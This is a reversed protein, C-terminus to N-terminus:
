YTIGMQAGIGQADVFTMLQRYREQMKPDNTYAPDQKTILAEIRKIEDGVNSQNMRGDGAFQRLNPNARLGVDLLFSLFKPNDGLMRGDPGRANIAMSFTDNDGNFLTQIATINSAYDSGWSKRLTEEAQQRFARDEQVVAEARQAEQQFYWDTVAKFQEPPMNLGHAHQKFGDVVGKIQDSAEMNPPLSYSYDEWKEPLGQTKRWEAVQEPPADKGPPAVKGGSRAIKMLGKFREALAKADATRELEKGFEPDAESLAARLTPWDAVPKGADVPPTAAPPDTPPTAALPASPPPAAPAAPPPTDDSAPPPVIAAPPAGADDILNFRAMDWLTKFTM